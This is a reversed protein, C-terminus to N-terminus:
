HLSAGSAERNCTSGAARRESVETNPLSRYIKRIERQTIRARGIRALVFVVAEGEGLGLRRAQLVLGRFGMPMETGLHVNSGTIRNTSRGHPM